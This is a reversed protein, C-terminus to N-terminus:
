LYVSVDKRWSRLGERSTLLSGGAQLFRSQMEFDGEAKSAIGGGMLEVGWRIKQNQERLTGRLRLDAGMWNGRVDLDWKEPGGVVSAKGTWIGRSSIRLDASLPDRQVSGNVTIVSGSIEARVASIELTKNGYGFIGYLRDAKQRKGKEDGWAVTGNEVQVRVTGKRRWDFELKAAPVSVGVGRGEWRVNQVTLGILANGRIQDARFSSGTWESLVPAALELTPGTFFVLLAVLAGAGAVFASLLAILFSRWPKFSSAM